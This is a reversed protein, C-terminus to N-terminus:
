KKWPWHRRSQIVKSTVVKRSSEDADTDSVSTLKLDEVLPMRFLFPHRFNGNSVQGIFTGPTLSHAAWAVQDKSLGIFNGAAM